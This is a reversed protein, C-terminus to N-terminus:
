GVCRNCFTSINSGAHQTLTDMYSSLSTIDLEHLVISSPISLVLQENVLDITVPESVTDERKNSSAALRWLRSMKDQFITYFEGTNDDPEFNSWFM